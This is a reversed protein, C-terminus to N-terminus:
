IKRKGSVLRVRKIFSKESYQKYNIYWEKHGNAYEVAPGDTRHSLGNLYWEKHSNSWEVAPGDTRNRLGNLYWIKDGINYEVAPGDTRHLKGKDNLYETYNPYKKIKTYNSM